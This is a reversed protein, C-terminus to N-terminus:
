GLGLWTPLYHAPLYHLWASLFHDTALWLAGVAGLGGIAEVTEANDHGGCVRDMWQGMREVRHAMVAGRLSDGPALLRPDCGEMAYIDDVALLEPGDDVYGRGAGVVAAVVRRPRGGASDEQTLWGAVTETRWLPSGAPGSYFARWGIPAPQFGVTTWYTEAMKIEMRDPEPVPEPV